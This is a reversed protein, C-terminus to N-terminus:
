PQARSGATPRKRGSEPLFDRGRANAQTFLAAGVLLGSLSLTGALSTDLILRPSWHAALKLHAGSWDRSTKGPHPQQAGLTAARTHAQQVHPAPQTHLPPPPARYVRHHARADAQRTPANPQTKLTPRTLPTQLPHSERQQMEQADEQPSGGEHATVPLLGSSAARRPFM